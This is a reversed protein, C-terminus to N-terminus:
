MSLVVEDNKEDGNADEDVDGDVDRDGRVNITELLGRERLFTIIAAAMQEPPGELIQGTKRTVGASLIQSIREHPSSSTDPTFITRPRPRPPTVARVVPAPFHLDSATLQLDAPESMPITARKAAMIGPLSAHRLRAVGAEVALIAPLRVEGAARAGRDARQQVQVVQGRVECRTVDVVVPWGLHAGLLAPVQGSGRDSSRTGCLLLDPLNGGQLAAALLKATLAPNTETWGASWLHLVQDAGAALAERLVAEARAPGVTCALVHGADGRLQLALELAAADAPNTIYLLRRPDITGTLPDVEVTQPDPVQKLCVAIRM